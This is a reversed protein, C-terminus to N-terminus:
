IGIEEEVKHPQTEKLTWRNSASMNMVHSFKWGEHQIFPDTLIWLYIMEMEWFWCRSQNGRLMDEFSDSWSASGSSINFISFNHISNDRMLKTIIRSSVLMLRFNQQFWIPINLNFNIEQRSNRKMNVPYCFSSIWVSPSWCWMSCHCFSSSCEQCLTLFCSKKSTEIFNISFEVQLTQSEM